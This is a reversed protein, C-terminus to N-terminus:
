MNVHAQINPLSNSTLMTKILNTVYDNLFIHGQLITITFCFFLFSLHWYFERMIVALSGKAALSKLHLIDVTYKAWM